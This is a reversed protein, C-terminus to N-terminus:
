TGFATVSSACVSARVVKIRLPLKGLGRRCYDGSQSGETPQHLTNVTRALGVVSLPTGRKDYPTNRCARISRSFDSDRRGHHSSQLNSAQNQGGPLSRFSLLITRLSNCLDRGTLTQIQDCVIRNFRLLQCLGARESERAPCTPSTRKSAAHRIFPRNGAQKRHNDYGGLLPPAEPSFVASIVTGFYLGVFPGAFPSEVRSM